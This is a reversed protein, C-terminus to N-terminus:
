VSEMNSTKKLAFYGSTEYFVLDLPFIIRTDDPNVKLRKADSNFKFFTETKTRAAMSILETAFKLEVCGDSVNVVECMACEEPVYVMDNACLAMPGELRATVGFEYLNLDRTSCHDVCNQQSDKSSRWFQSGTTTDVVLRAIPFVESKPVQMFRDSLEWLNLDVDGVQEFLAFVNRHQEERVKRAPVICPTSSGFEFMPMACTNCELSYLAKSFSFRQVQSALYGRAFPSRNDYVAPDMLQAVSTGMLDATSKMVDFDTGSAQLHVSQSRRVDYPRIESGFMKKSASAVYNGFSTADPFYGKVNAKSSRCGHVDPCFLPDGFELLPFCEFYLDLLGAWEHVPTHVTHFKTNVVLLEWEQSKHNFKLYSNGDLKDLTSIWSDATQASEGASAALLVEHYDVGRGGRTIAMLMLTDHVEVKLRNGIEAGPGLPKCEDIQGRLSATLAVVRDKLEDLSVQEKPPDLERIRKNSAGQAKYQCALTRLSTTLEDYRDAITKPWQLGAWFIAWELDMLIKGAYGTDNGREETNHTAFSEFMKADYLLWEFSPDGQWGENRSLHSLFNETAAVIKKINGDPTFAVGPRQANYTTTQWDIFRDRESEFSVWNLNQAQTRLSPLRTRPASASRRSAAFM